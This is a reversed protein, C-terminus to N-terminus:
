IYLEKLHRIRLEPLIIPKIGLKDKVDLCFTADESVNEKYKGIEVVRQRFYPYEMEKLIDTSVKTFGFGCYDVEFPKKQKVIDDSHWFKMQGDKKFKSENWDAIMAIGSLDKVYWGACFQSEYSLLTNLETYNFDQDADIWVLYDVKNILNNPNTFGGGDTCLWNRADAHTRGVVTYIKGDLQPCWEQLNLFRKFLRGSIHNYIPILFAYKM